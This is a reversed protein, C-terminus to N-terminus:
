ADPKAAADFAPRPTWSVTFDWAGTIGTLDVVPHDLYNPAYGQLREALQALTMNKCTMTIVEWASERTLFAVRQDITDLCTKLCIFKTSPRHFDRADRWEDSENTKIAREEFCMERRANFDGPSYRRFVPISAICRLCSLGCHLKTEFSYTKSLNNGERNGGIHCRPPYHFFDAHHMVRSVIEIM